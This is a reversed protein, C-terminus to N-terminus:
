PWSAHGPLSYVRYLIGIITKSIRSHVRIPAWRDRPSCDLPVAWLHCHSRPPYPSDCLSWRPHPWEAGSCCCLHGRWARPGSAWRASWGSCCGGSGASAGPDGGCWCTPEMEMLQTPYPMSMVFPFRNAPVEFNNVMKPFSWKFLVFSLNICKTILCYNSTLSFRFFFKFNKNPSTKTQKKKLHFSYWIINAILKLQSWTIKYCSISTFTFIYIYFLKRMLLVMWCKGGHGHRMAWIVWQNMGM